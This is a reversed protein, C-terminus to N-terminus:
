LNYEDIIKWFTMGKMKAPSVFHLDVVHCVSIFKLFTGVVGNIQTM